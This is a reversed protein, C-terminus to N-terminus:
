KKDIRKNIKALENEVYSVFGIVLWVSFYIVLTIYFNDREDRFMFYLDDGAWAWIIFTIIFFYRM